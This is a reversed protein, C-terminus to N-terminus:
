AALLYLAGIVCIAFILAFLAETSHRVHKTGDGSHRPAAPRRPAELMPNGLHSM